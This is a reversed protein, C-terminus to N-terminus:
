LFFQYQEFRLERLVGLCGLITYAEIGHARGAQFFNFGDSPLRRRLIHEENDLVMKKALPQHTSSASRLRERGEVLPKVLVLWLKLGIKRRLLVVMFSGRAFVLM